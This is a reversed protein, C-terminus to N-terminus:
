NGGCPECNEESLDEEWNPTCTHEVNKVRKVAQRLHGIYVCFRWDDVNDYFLAHVGHWREFTCLRTTNELTIQYVDNRNLKAALEKHEAGLKEVSEGLPHHGKAIWSDHNNFRGIEM